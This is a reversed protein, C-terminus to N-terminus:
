KKPVLSVDPFPTTESITAWADRTTRVAAALQDLYKAGYRRGTSRLLSSGVTEYFDRLSQAVTGGVETDLCQNLGQIIKAAAMVENFQREYDKKRNADAARAIRALIGDYLMVVAKLPPMAQQASQYARIGHRTHHM